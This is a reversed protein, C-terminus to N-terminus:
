TLTKNTGTWYLCSLTPNTNNDVLNKEM